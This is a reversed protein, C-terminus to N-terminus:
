SPRNVSVGGPRAISSGHWAEVTLAAQQRPANTDQRQRNDKGANPRLGTFGDGAVDGEPAPTWADKAQRSDHRPRPQAKPKMAAIGWMGFANM